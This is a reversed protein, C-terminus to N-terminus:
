SWGQPRRGERLFALVASNFERRNEASMSHSGNEIMVLRAGPIRSALFESSSPRIVRDETGAIVLTPSRILHLRESTDHDKIAAGQSEFGAAWSKSTLAMWAVVFTRLMPNNNALSALTLKIEKVDRRGQKLYEATQGSGCGQCAFTCGLVLKLVRNPYNIAVEQAIMGGMSLGLIHAAEIHLYDMLGIVDAAMVKMSYPGSPKDSKGVSRNDFAVVRFYKGYVPLQFIWARLDTGWGAILVLPEGKGHIRYHLEIGNAQATPM